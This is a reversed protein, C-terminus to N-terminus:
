RRMSPWLDSDESDDIIYGNFRFGQPLFPIVTIGYDTVLLFIYQVKDMLASNLFDWEYKQFVSVDWKDTLVTVQKEGHSDNIMNRSERLIGRLFGPLKQQGKCIAVLRSKPPPLKRKKVNGSYINYDASEGDEAEPQNVIDDLIQSPRQHNSCFLGLDRLMNGTEQPIRKLIDERCAFKFEERFESLKMEM